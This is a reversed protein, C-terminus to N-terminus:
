HQLLPAIPMLLAPRSLLSLPLESPAGGTHKNSLVLLAKARELLSHNLLLNQSNAM